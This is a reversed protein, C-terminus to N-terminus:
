SMGGDLRIVAGNIYEAEDSALFCALNAVEDPTGFRGMACASLIAERAKEGMATKGDATIIGPAIANARVNRPGTELALVKTWAIMAAKVVGYASMGSKMDIGAISAINIINGSERALMPKLVLQTVSMQAFLNIKFNNEINKV